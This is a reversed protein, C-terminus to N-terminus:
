IRPMSSVALVRKRGTRSRGWSGGFPGLHGWVSGFCILFLNLVSEFCTGSVLFVSFRENRSNGPGSRPGSFEMDNWNLTKKTEPVQKSDTKSRNQIQKPDTQPRKPPDRPRPRVPRFCTGATMKRNEMSYGRYRAHRMVVRSIGLEGIPGGALPSGRM